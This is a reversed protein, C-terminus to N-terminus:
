SITVERVRETDNRSLYVSFICLRRTAASVEDGSANRYPLTM